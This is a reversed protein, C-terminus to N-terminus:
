LKTQVAPYKLKEDMEQTFLKMVSSNIECKRKLYLIINQKPLLQFNGNIGM